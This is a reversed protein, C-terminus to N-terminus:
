PWSSNPILSLQFRVGEIKDTPRANSSFRWASIKCYRRDLMRWPATTIVFCSAFSQKHLNLFTWRIVTVELLGSRGTKSNFISPNLLFKTAQRESLAYNGLTALPCQLRDSKIIGLLQRGFATDSKKSVSKCCTTVSFARCSAGPSLPELVEISSPLSWRQIPSVQSGSQSPIFKCVSMEELIALFNKTWRALFM